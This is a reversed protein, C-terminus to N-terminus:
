RIIVARRTASRNGQILRLHYVGAALRVGSSLDFSHAGPGLSGVERSLIRRGSLDFVELTAPEGGALSFAVVPDGASPNPTLGRLAFQLAPVEVWAEDTHLLDGGLRYALRYGYRTGPTVARDEYALWGTGDATVSALPEWDSTEARREVSAVLSAMGSGYWRLRVRGSEYRISALSLDVATVTDWTLAWTDSYRIDHLEEFRYGGFVVMRSRVPDYIASHSYRAQPLQDSRFGGHWLEIWAPSGGLTLAWADGFESYYSNGLGFGAFVVMRDRGPDYIATHYRRARPPIGAPALQSWTPSGALSLAWADNFYDFDTGTGGFVVMRDRAPDYIATHSSRGSPPIGAPALQSWAPSGALSLAWTDNRSTSGDTGGFVVMRDRVPDYIATHEYRASPPIGAPALKSWAPSGALSLAWTDNSVGSGAFVVMRDRLPDYIATHWGRPSPPTGTPALQSWAPIGALSLVWTDNLTSSGGFVVMRDRVPDYIATHGLRRPRTGASPLLGWTPTGTLALTIVDDLRYGYNVEYGGFVVMRKRVPDYIATSGTREIIHSQFLGWSSSGALSLSWVESKYGGGTGFVVMRDSVPDYIATHGNQPSPPTGAPALQSWAPSEGLSLAWTDNRSGFGDYGGFVVMRDRVPDYIATHGARQTKVLENWVGEDATM